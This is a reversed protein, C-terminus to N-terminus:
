KMGSLINKAENLADMEAARAEQRLDFNKLLFDCSKHLDGAQDNLGGLLGVTEKLDTKAMVLDAKAKASGETMDTIMKTTQIIMKNSDKMFNEYANQASEEANIAENEMDKSDKMVDELMALVRKGGANEEMKKFKAPGNGPDTATGSTQIHPAGPQQQQLFAYVQAMRDIAKQLIMQTLRQDQVTTQYDANEAERTESRRKMQTQTEAIAAKSSEINEGLTKISQELDSIKTELSERKDYGAATERKNTNLDEICNDRFAIEDQQQTKLEGIMKDIEAKVETFVDLQAAVALLALKPANNAAAAKQLVASARSRKQQEQQQSEIQIFSNVSKDFTAFAEDDNLIGITDEVAAIEELRSKVRQEFEEDTNACKEQLTALFQKDNALQEETDELEKIAEANTEALAALDQDFQIIAKKATEIEEEKGAKLKEYEDVAKAESKQEEGLDKEFDEKMQKLIGFVQGSQPAYSQMGPIALFSTESAKDASTLFEKLAQAKFQNLAGSDKVFLQTVRAAQLMRAISKVQALEPNHKSLVIIANKTADIAQLLDTETEQFEKNEKMRIENAEGLADQDAYQEEQTAKRKSKLEKIKAATEGLTAELESIRAEGLEISKTKEKENTSCWCDMMEHVAKDDELEKNLEAKMDELMRVVKMIPREKLSVSQDRALLTVASATALVSFTAPIKM